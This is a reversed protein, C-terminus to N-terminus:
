QYENPRCHKVSMISVYVFCSKTSVSLAVSLSLKCPMSAQGICCFYPVTVLMKCWSGTCRKLTRIMTYFTAHVLIEHENWAWMM